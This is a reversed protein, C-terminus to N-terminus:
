TAHPRQYTCPPTEGQRGSPSPCSTSALTEFSKHTYYTAKDWHHIIFDLITNKDTRAEIGACYTCIYDDDYWNDWDSAAVCQECTDRGCQTCISGNKNNFYLNHCNPMSCHVFMFDNDDPIFFTNYQEICEPNNCDLGAM